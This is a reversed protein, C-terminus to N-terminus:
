PIIRRLYLLHNSTNVLPFDPSCHSLTGDLLHGPLGSPLHLLFYVATQTICVTLTFPHPLLAGTSQAILTALYVWGAALLTHYM